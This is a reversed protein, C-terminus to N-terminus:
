YPFYEFSQDPVWINSNEKSAIISPSESFQLRLTSGVLLGVLNDLELTLGGQSISEIVYMNTGTTIRDGVHFFGINEPAIVINNGGWFAIV